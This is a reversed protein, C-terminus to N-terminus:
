QRERGPRDGLGTLPHRAFINEAFGDVDAAVLSWRIPAALPIFLTDQDILRAAEALMAARQAAVPAERASGMLEDADESCLSTADCRFARVFWAPSTSPAVSDVLKLDAPQGEAVRRLQIGLPAWDAALRNFLITAGPGVPLAITLETEEGGLLRRAQAILASRREDVPVSAWQPPSPPRIGELGAQLLTVRPVLGPVDLAAILADRDIARSLLGRVDADELPGSERGPTLGFLGAVPDFRLERRGLRVRRALPLDVFTGGLVLDAKGARFDAIARSAPATRLWVNEIRDPADVIRVRHTLAIAGPVGSKAEPQFPGSGQRERVIALEPQALLQLLNPRPARLRIEIVRETMPVVEEIAGLADKLENRSASRLQRSLLRSVDRAMIKRGDPWEGTTLRFIYSLGDNSVNWREALGPEIQGRADFRVLGQAVSSLLLADPASVPGASPDALAPPEEGIVAVDVAEDASGGCGAVAAGLAIAILLSRPLAM